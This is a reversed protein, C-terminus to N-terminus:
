AKQKVTGRPQVRVVYETVTSNFSCSGELKNILPIQDPMIELPVEVQHRLVHVGLGCVIVVGINSSGSGFQVLSSPFCLYSSNPSEKGNDLILQWLIEWYQM